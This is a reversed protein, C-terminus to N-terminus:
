YLARLEGPGLGVDGMLLVMAHERPGVKAAGAVLQEFDEPEYYEAEPHRCIGACHM